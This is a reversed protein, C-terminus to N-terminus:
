CILLLIFMSSSSEDGILMNAKSGIRVIQKYLSILSRVAVPLPIPEAQSALDVM